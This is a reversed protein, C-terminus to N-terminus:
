GKRHLVIGKESLVYALSPEARGQLLLQKEALQYFFEAQELKGQEKCLAARVAYLWPDADFAAAPLRDLWSRLLVFQARNIMRERQRGILRVAPGHQGASLYQDIAKDPEGKRDFYGAARQHLAQREAPDTLQEQLFERFLNHYRYAGNGATTVFVSGKELQSLTAAPDKVGLVEGCAEPTLTELVSSRRLFDRTVPLERSFIERAFYRFLDGHEQRYQRMTEAVTRGDRNAAQLILQVGTVWGETREAIGQLEDDTMGAPSGTGLLERIEGATFKLAERTLEAVDRKARWKPLSPLPPERRSALVAHVTPPLHDIFYDMAQHVASDDALAHYDDLLVFLEENRKEVLENILTGMVLRVNAGMGAGRELLGQTRRALGPQLRELGAALCSLFSVLDSDEPELSIFVHPLGTKERVQALLTTKGYGADGTIVLLKKDLNNAIFGALRERYLTGPKVRPLQLKTALVLGNPIDSGTPKKKAM